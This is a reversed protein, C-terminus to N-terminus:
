KMVALMSVIAWASKSFCLPVMVEPGVGLTTLYHALRTSLQDIEHYTFDGDWSCVATADPQALVREKFIEHVCSDIAKPRVSNWEWVQRRDRESFLNLEEVTAGFDHIIGSIASSFTSAPNAAQNDSM